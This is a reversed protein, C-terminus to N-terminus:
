AFILEADDRRLTQTLQEIKKITKDIADEHVDIHPKLADNFRQEANNLQNLFLLYNMRSTYSARVLSKYDEGRSLLLSQYHEILLKVWERFEHRTGDPVRATTVFETLDVKEGNKCYNFAADLARKRTILYNDAFSRRGDVYRQHRYMHFVIIIPILIMWVNMKPKELVASSL